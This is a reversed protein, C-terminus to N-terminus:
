GRLWAEAKVEDRGEERLHQAPLHKGIQFCGQCSEDLLQAKSSRHHVFGNLIFYGFRVNLAQAMREVSSNLASLACVKPTQRLGVLRFPDYFPVLQPQPTTIKLTLAFEGVPCLILVLGVM